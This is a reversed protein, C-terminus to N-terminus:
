WSPGGAGPVFALPVPEARRQPRCRAEVEEATPRVEGLVAELIERLGHVHSATLVVLGAYFPTACRTAVRRAFEGLWRLLHDDLVRALRRWEEVGRSYRLVHAVFQLQLVLHDDFRERWGPGQLGYQGYLARMEFMADQCVLHDDSVWVSEYPSAGLSANLYIAAYDVALRDAAANLGDSAAEVALAGMARGMLDFARASPEGGPRFGLNDPFTIEWLGALTAPALERDQLLALTELDDVIADALVPPITAMVPMEGTACDPEDM